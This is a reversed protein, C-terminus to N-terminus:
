LLQFGVPVSGASPLDVDILERVNVVYFGM